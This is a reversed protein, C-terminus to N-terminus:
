FLILWYEFFAQVALIAALLVLTICLVQLLYVLVDAGDEDEVIAGARIAVVRLIRNRNLRPKRILVVCAQQVQQGHQVRQAERRIHSRNELAIANYIVKAM